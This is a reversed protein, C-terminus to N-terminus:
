PLRAVVVFENYIFISGCWRPFPFSYSRELDLGLTRVIEQLGALDVFEVHTPDSAYGREQPTICCVRGGPGLYPLYRHVLEIAEAGADRLYELPPIRSLREPDKSLGDLFATDFETNVLGARPGQIQHSMGGTGFIVVKLDEEWSDVAKRIAKGLM